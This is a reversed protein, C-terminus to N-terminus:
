DACDEVGDLYPAIMRLHDLGQQWGGQSLRVNHESIPLCEYVEPRYAQFAEVYAVRSHIGAGGSIGEMIKAARHLTMYQAELRAYARVKKEIHRTVDILISGYRQTSVADLWSTVGAPCFFYIQGVHHSPLDNARAGEAVYLSEVVMRGCAAHESAGGDELPNHTIVLHPRVQQLLTALEEVLAPDRSLLDGQHEFFRVEKVGLIECAQRVSQNHAETSEQLTPFDGRTRGDSIADALRFNNALDAKQMIIVVVQDGREVHNALTGGMMDFADAPHAVIGLVTLQM